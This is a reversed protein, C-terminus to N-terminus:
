VREPERAALEAAVAATVAAGDPAVGILRAVVAGAAEAAVDGVSAMAKRSAAAIGAEAEAIRAKLEDGLRAQDAAAEAKVAERKGAAIDHARARAEALGAEYAKLAEEARKNMADAHDLDDAIRDARHELVDAIRPLAIRALILYLVVFTIALWVLQPAFTAPDFQPM